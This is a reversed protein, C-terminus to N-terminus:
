GVPNGRNRPNRRIMPSTHLITPLYPLYPTHYTPYTHLITPPYPLYPRHYTPSAHLITPLPDVPHFTMYDPLTETKDEGRSRVSGQSRSVLTRSDQCHTRPSSTVESTPPTPPGTMYHTTPPTPSIRGAWPLYTPLHYPLYTPLYPTHYTPLYTPLPISHSLLSSPPLDPSPLSSQSTM